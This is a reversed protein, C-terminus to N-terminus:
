LTIKSFAYNEVKSTHTTFLSKGGFTCFPPQFEITVKYYLVTQILVVEALHGFDVAVTM